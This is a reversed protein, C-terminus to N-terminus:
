TKALSASMFHYRMVAEIHLEEAGITLCGKTYM